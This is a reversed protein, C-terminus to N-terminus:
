HRLLIILIGLLDGLNARLLKLARSILAEVAKQTIGMKEAIQPYTLQDKRSYEFATHCRDPLKGVAQWIRANLDKSEISEETENQAFDTQNTIPVFRARHEERLHDICKNRAMFYLYSYLDEINQLGNRKEWFRVFCDQVLSQALDQDHVIRIAHITLVKYYKRFIFDFAEEKGLQLQTFLFLDDNENKLIMDAKQTLLALQLM